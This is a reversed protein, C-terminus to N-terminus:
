TTADETKAKKPPNLYAACQDAGWGPIAEVTDAALWMDLTKPRTQRSLKHARTAATLWAASKTAGWQQFGQPTTRSVDYCRARAFAHFAKDLGKAVARQRKAIAALARKSPTADAM